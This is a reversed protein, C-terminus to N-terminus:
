AKPLIRRRLILRKLLQPPLELNEVRRTKTCLLQHVFTRSFPGILGRDPRIRRLRTGRPNGDLTERPGRRGRREIASLWTHRRTTRGAFWDAEGSRDRNARRDGRHAFAPAPGATGIALWTPFAAPSPFAHAPWWRRDPHDYRGESSAAGEPQHGLCREQQGHGAVSPCDIGGDLM